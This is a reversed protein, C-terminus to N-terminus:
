IFYLFKVCSVGGIKECFDRGYHSSNGSTLALHRTGDCHTVASPDSPKLLCSKALQKRSLCGCFDKGGPPRFSDDCFNSKTQVSAKFLM